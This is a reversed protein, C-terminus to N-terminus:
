SPFTKCIKTNTETINHHKYRLNETRYTKEYLTAFILKLIYLERLVFGAYKATVLNGFEAPKKLPTIASTEGNM